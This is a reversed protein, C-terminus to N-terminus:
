SIPPTTGTSDEYAFRLVCAGFEGRRQSGSIDVCCMNALTITVSVAGKGTITFVLPGTFGTLATTMKVERLTVTAICSKDPLAIVSPYENDGVRNEEVRGSHSYSVEIPGGATSANWTLGNWTVQSCKFTVNVAM